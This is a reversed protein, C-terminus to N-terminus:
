CLQYFKKIEELATGHAKLTDEFASWASQLAHHCEEYTWKKTM